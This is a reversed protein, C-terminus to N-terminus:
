KSLSFLGKGGSGTGVLNAPIIHPRIGNFFVSDPFFDNVSLTDIKQILSSINM